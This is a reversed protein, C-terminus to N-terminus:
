KNKRTLVKPKKIREKKILEKTKVLIADKLTWVEDAQEMIYHSHTICVITLKNKKRFKMLYEIIIKETTADLNGTPEDLLLLKPQLIISRAIATRQAEGGSLDKPYAKKRHSIKLEDLLHNVRNKNIKESLFYLPLKINQQTTLFPLLRFDQFLIGINDRRFKAMKFKGMQHVPKKSLFYEGSKPKLLAALIYLLTSKGSGSTGAITIFSKQHIDLNINELIKKKHYSFSLKNLKVLPHM